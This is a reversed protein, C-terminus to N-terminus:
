LIKPEYPWGQRGWSEFRQKIAKAHAHDLPKAFVFPVDSGKKTVTLLLGHKAKKSRKLEVILRM